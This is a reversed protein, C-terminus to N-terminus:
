PRRHRMKTVLCAAPKVYGGMHLIATGGDLLLGVGLTVHSSSGSVTEEM